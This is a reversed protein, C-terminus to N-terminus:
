DEKKLNQVYSFMTIASACGVNLSRVSGYQKIYLLQSCREIIEPRLGVSEEGFAMIIHKDYDWKYDEIPISREINDIGVLISDRAIEDLSGIEKVHKFNTYHHTGITGRRDYQKSGYIIVEKALFANSNRIIASLNFDRVFNTVLVSFNHRKEDLDARIADDSWYKYFDVVNRKDNM